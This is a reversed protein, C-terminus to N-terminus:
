SYLVNVAGADFTDTGGVTALAIGNIGVVRGSGRHVATAANSTSAFSKVIWTDISFRTLEITSEWVSAALSSSTILVDNSPYTTISGAQTVVSGYCTATTNVSTILLGNTGSTSVGALEITIRTAWSPVSSLFIATGSTTAQETGTKNQALSLESILISKTTTVSTDVIPLMDATQAVGSGALATLASIKASM